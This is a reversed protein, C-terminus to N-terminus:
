ASVSLSLYAELREVRQRLLEVDEYFDELEQRPPFWQTEEHVYESINEQLSTRFARFARSVGRAFNGVQHAVVDGTYHSLQEEWDIEINKFLGYVQYGSEVNGEIQIDQAGRQTLASSLLNISTSKIISVPLIQCISLVQIGESKFLLFFSLSLDTLQIKVCQGDLDSLQQFTEPDLKLYANLAKELVKNMKMRM